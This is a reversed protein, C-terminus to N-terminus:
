SLIFTRPQDRLSMIASTMCSSEPCSLSRFCTALWIWTSFPNESGMGAPNHHDSGLVFKTGTAADVRSCPTFWAAVDVRPCTTFWVWTIFSKKAAPSVLNAFRTSVSFAEWTAMDLNVVKYSFEMIKVEERWEGVGECGRAVGFVGRAGDCCWWM